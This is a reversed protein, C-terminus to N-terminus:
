HEVSGVSQLESNLQALLSEEDPNGLSITRGNLLYTPVAFVSPPCNVDPETLDIVSVEVEPARRRVTRALDYAYLCTSCEPEVYIDLKLAM